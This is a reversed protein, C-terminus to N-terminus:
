ALQWQLTEGAMFPTTYLPQASIQLSKDVKFPKNVYQATHTPVPLGYFMPGNVSAIAELRDIAGIRHLAEIYLSMAVPESCCGGKGGDRYKDKDSHPAGDTIIFIKKTNSIVFDIIAQQDAPSNIVPYCNRSPYLYVDNCNFLLYQVAVSAAIMNSTSQVFQVGEKTSVHELVIKLKPFAKHIKALVKDVFIRERDYLSIRADVVEGHVDLPIDLKEMAAFIPWIKQINTVGASSNITAGAPYLKVSLINDSAAVMEIDKITTNNTLYLAVFAKFHSNMKGGITQAGICYNSAEKPRSLPKITNPMGLAYCFQAATWPVTFKLQELERWHVHFNSSAIIEMYNFGAKEFFKM